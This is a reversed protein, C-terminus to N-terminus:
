VWVSPQQDLLPVQLAAWPSFAFPTATVASALSTWPVWRWEMVESANPSVRSGAHTQAVFVPCVENEVVGSADVARYAFDPLASRVAGVELGLEDDLRRRVADTPEEGPRPHGCCSNTWVGPWTRKSLARRTLLVQGAGDTVYCSFALHLPTETDHVTTRPATGVPTGDADVLVVDDGAHLPPHATTAVM